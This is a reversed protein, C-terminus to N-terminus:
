GILVMQHYLHIRLRAGRRELVEGLLDHAVKVAQRANVTIYAMGPFCRGEEGDIPLEVNSRIAFAAGKRAERKILAEADARTCTLSEDRDALAAHREARSAARSM